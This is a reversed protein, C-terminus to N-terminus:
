KFDGRDTTLPTGGETGTGSVRMYRRDPNQTLDIERRWRRGSRGGGAVASTAVGHRRSPKPVPDVTACDTM